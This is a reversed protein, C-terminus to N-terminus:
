KLIFPQLIRICTDISHWFIQGLYYSKYCSWMAKVLIFEKKEQLKQVDGNERKLAEAKKM